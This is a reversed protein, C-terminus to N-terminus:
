RAWELKWLQVTRMGQSLAGDQMKLALLYCRAETAVNGNGEPLLDGEAEKEDACKHSISPGGLYDLVIDIDNTVDAIDRKDYLTIIMPDM